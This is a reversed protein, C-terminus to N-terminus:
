FTGESEKLYAKLESVSIAEGIVVQVMSYFEDLVAGIAEQDSIGKTTGDPLTISFNGFMKSSPSEFRQIILPVNNSFLRQKWVVVGIVKNSGAAFVPGGSNGPNFAGNVVLHRVVGARTSVANFGALYGVSLIPSPGNYILPFGWTTLQSGLTLGDDSGLDMGGQVPESPRLLALDREGDSILKRFKLRKGLPTDAYLDGASCGKVVHDNTVVIGSSLLFSTGKKQTVPCVMLFVFKISGRQDSSAADVTWRTATPVGDTQGRVAAAAGLLMGLAFIAKIIM